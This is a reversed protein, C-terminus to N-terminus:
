KLTELILTKLKSATGSNSKAPTLRNYMKVIKEADFGYKDLAYLILSPEAEEGTLSKGTSVSMVTTINAEYIDEDKIDFERLGELVKTLYKDENLFYYPIYDSAKTKRVTDLSKIAAKMDAGESVAGLISVIYAKKRYDLDKESLFKKEKKYDDRYYADILKEIYNVRAYNFKQRSLWRLITLQNQENFISFVLAKSVNEEFNFNMVLFWRLSEMNQTSQMIKELSNKKNQMIDFVLKWEKRKCDTNEIIESVWDQKKLAFRGFLSRGGLREGTSLEYLRMFEKNKLTLSSIDSVCLNYVAQEVSKKGIRGGYFNNEICRMIKVQIASNDHEEIYELYRIKESAPFGGAKRCIEYSLENKLETSYEKKSLVEFMYDSPKFDLSFYEMMLATKETDSQLTDYKKKYLPWMEPLKDTDLLYKKDLSTFSLINYRGKLKGEKIDAWLFDGKELDYGAELIVNGKQTFVVHNYMKKRSLADLLIFPIVVICAPSHACSSNGMGKDVVVENIKINLDHKRVFFKAEDLTLPINAFKEVNGTQEQKDPITFVGAYSSTELLMLLLFSNLYRCLLM